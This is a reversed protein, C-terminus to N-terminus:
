KIEYELTIEKDDKFKFKFDNVLALKHSAENEIFTRYVLKKIGLKKANDKADDLLKSALGKRRANPSVALILFGSKKDKKDSYIDLFAKNKIVNRYSTPVDKFSGNPCTWYKEKDSLSNYIKLADKYNTKTVEEIFILPKIM